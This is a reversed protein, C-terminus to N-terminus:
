PEDNDVITSADANAGRQLLLEVVGNLGLSTAHILPTSNGLSLDRREIDAGHDLLWAIIDPCDDCLWMATHLPGDASAEGPTVCVGMTLCDEALWWERARLAEWFLYKLLEDREFGTLAALFERATSSSGRQLCDNMLETSLWQMAQKYSPEM